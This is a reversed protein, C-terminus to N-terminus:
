IGTADVTIAGESQWCDSRTRRRLIETLAHGNSVAVASSNHACATCLVRLCWSSSVDSSRLSPSPATNTGWGSILASSHFSAPLLAYLLV